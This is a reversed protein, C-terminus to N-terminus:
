EFHACDCDEFSLFDEREQVALMAGDRFELDHPEYAGSPLTVTQLVSVEDDDLNRYYVRIRATQKATPM